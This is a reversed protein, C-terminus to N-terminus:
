CPVLKDNRDRAITAGSTFQIYTVGDVCLKSYGTLEAVSRDIQGCGALALVFSFLVLNKM